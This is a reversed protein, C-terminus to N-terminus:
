PRRAVIEPAVQELPRGKVSTCCHYEDNASNEMFAVAAWQRPPHEQEIHLLHHQHKAIRCSASVSCCEHKESQATSLPACEGRWTDPSGRM